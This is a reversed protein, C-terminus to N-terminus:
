ALGNYKCEPNNDMQEIILNGWLNIFMMSPMLIFSAIIWLILSLKRNKTRFYSIVLFQIAYFNVYTLPLWVRIKNTCEASYTTEDGFSTFFFM